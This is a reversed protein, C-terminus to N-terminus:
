PVSIISRNLFKPNLFPGIQRDMSGYIVGVIVSAEYDCVFLPPDLSQRRPSDYDRSIQDIWKLFRIYSTKCKSQLLGIVVPFFLTSDSEIDAEIMSIIYVQEYKAYSKTLKFTGDGILRMNRMRPIDDTWACYIDGSPQVHIFQSREM